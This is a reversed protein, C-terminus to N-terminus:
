DDRVQLWVALRQALAKGDGAIALTKRRATAGREIAISTKSIRWEKALLKILATNAKGSEPAATVAVKIVSGGRAEAALGEIRTRGAKPTLQVSLKLGRDTITYPPAPANM